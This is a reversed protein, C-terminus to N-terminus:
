HYLQDKNAEVPNANTSSSLNIKNGFTQGLDTAAKFLAEDNGTQQGVMM